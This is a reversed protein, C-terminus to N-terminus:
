ESIIKNASLTKEILSTIEIRSFPKSIYDSFGKSLFEVKDKEDAFATVAIIPLNEYGSYTRIKKMLEVGDIGKGLNIDMLILDFKTQDIKRLASEADMASDINYLSKFIIKMYNVTIVDDEVYLIDVRKGATVTETTKIDNSYFKVEEYHNKVPLCVNFTSGIGVESEVDIKGGLIEVYKKAITLGLGTGEFSRSLGESVQRFEQWILHQKEKPIGVGTDKVSLKYFQEDNQEDLKFSIEVVGNHTFKIANNVLNTVIEEFLRKDSNIIFNDQTLNAKLETNNEKALQKFVAITEKLSKNVDFSNIKVEVKNFEIRTVHLIKNLTETLRRSSKKIQEAYHRLEPDLIMDSLLESFGLIGIFPTRLEHSMNAFFYSKIKNMEEAKHKALILEETMKKQESIDEELVIYNVIEGNSNQISSVTASVWYTEGNKRKNLLESKWENHRIVKAWIEEIDIEPTIESSLFFPNLGVVEDFTYGTTETFKSNIYEIKGKTNTVIISAASQEVARSLRLIKKEAEKKDTINRVISLVQNEGFLVLRNELIFKKNGNNLEFEHVQPQRTKFLDYIKELTLSALEPPLLERIHKGKIEEFNIDISKDIDNKFSIVEGTKQMLFIMDPIAMLFADNKMESEKLAEKSKTRETIDHINLLILPKEDIYITNASILGIIEEGNKNRGRMEYDKVKGDKKLIYVLLNRDSPNQWLDLELTSKGIAEKRSYGFLSEFGANIEVIEGTELKTLSIANSTTEFIRSFKLNSEFLRQQKLREETQDQIAIVVGSNKEKSEKIPSISCSIPITIDNKNVLLIKNLITPTANNLVIETPNEIEQKTDENLIKFVKELKVGKANNESWGTLKEAMTNMNTIDGYENTTIVGDGICYLTTRFHNERKTLKNIFDRNLEFSSLIRGILVTVFPFIVVVTFSIKRFTEARYQSPLAIISGIMILHIILGMSYLQILSVQNSQKAKKLGYFVLGVLYAATSIYLGMTVGAGGLYYRFGVTLVAAILGSVPGFFMTCISIIITRGDFIIGQTFVFPNLMGAIATLGFLIGQLYNMLTQKEALKNNIFGSLVSLSILLSLNHILDVIIM